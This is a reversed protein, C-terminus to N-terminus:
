EARSSSFAQRALHRVVTRNKHQARHHLLIALARLLPLEVPVTGAVTVWASYSLAECAAIARDCARLLLHVVHESIWAAHEAPDAQFAWRASRDPRILLMMAM